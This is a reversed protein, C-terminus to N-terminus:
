RPEPKDYTTRPDDYEARAQKCESEHQMAYEFVLCEQVKPPFKECDRLYVDRPALEIRPTGEARPASEQGVAPNASLVAKTQEYSIECPTLGAREVAPKAAASSVALNMLRSEPEEPISRCAGLVVSALLLLVRRPM